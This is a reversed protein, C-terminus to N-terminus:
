PALGDWGGREDTWQYLFLLQELEYIGRDLHKQECRTEKGGIRERLMFENALSDHAIHNRYGVVSDLLTTFEQRFERQKVESSVRGPTWREMSEIEVGYSRAILGKLTIELLQAMGMFMAFRELLNRGKYKELRREVGARIQETDLTEGRQQHESM